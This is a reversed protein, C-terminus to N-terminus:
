VADYEILIADEYDDGHSGFFKSVILTVGM